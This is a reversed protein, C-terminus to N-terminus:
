ERGGRSEGDLVDRVRDTIAMVSCGSFGLVAAAIGQAAEGRLYNARVSM